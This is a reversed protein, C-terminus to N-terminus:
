FMIIVIHYSVNVIHYSFSSSNLLTWTSFSKWVVVQVNNDGKVRVGEM